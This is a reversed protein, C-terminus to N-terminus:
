AGPNFGFLPEAVTSYMAKVAENIKIYHGGFQHTPNYYKGKVDPPTVLIRGPFDARPEYLKKEKTKFLSM